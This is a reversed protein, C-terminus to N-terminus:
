KSKKASVETLILQFAQDPTFGAEELATKKIFLLKANEKIMNQLDVSESLLEVGKLAASLRQNLADKITSDRYFTKGINVAEKNIYRETAVISTDKAAKDLITNVSQPLPQNPPIHLKEKLKKEINNSITKELGNITPM